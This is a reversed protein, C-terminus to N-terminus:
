RVTNIETWYFAKQKIFTVVEASPFDAVDILPPFVFTGKQSSACGGGSYAENCKTKDLMTSVSKTGRKGITLIQPINRQQTHKSAIHLDSM